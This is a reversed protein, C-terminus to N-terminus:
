RSIHFKWTDLYQSQLSTFKYPELLNTDYECCLLTGRHCDNCWRAPVMRRRALNYITFPVEM